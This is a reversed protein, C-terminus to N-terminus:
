LDLEVWSWFKNEKWKRWAESGILDLREVVSDQTSGLPFEPRSEGCGAPCLHTERVRQKTEPTAQGRELGWCDRQEWTLQKEPGGTM